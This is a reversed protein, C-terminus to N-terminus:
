PKRRAAEPDRTWLSIVGCAADHSRFDAPIESASRYIEVGEISGPSFDDVSGNLYPHGDVYLQVSCSRIVSSMSRQMHVPDPDGASEQTVGVGPIYRLLESIRGPQRQEIDARTVFAGVGRSRRRNFAGMKGLMPNAVVTEGPLPQVAQKMVFDAHATAGAVLVVSMTDPAYGIRRAILRVTGIEAVAIRYAGSADSETRGTNDQIGVVDVTVRGLRAGVSDRVVGAVAISPTQAIAGFAPWAVLVVVISRTRLSSTVVESVTDKEV